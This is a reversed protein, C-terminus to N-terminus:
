KDYGRAFSDCIENSLGSLGPFLVSETVGASMLQRRIRDKSSAIVDIRLLADQMNRIADLAIRSLGHVTFRGRQASIRHSNMPPDIAIPREPLRKSHKSWLSSLYPRAARDSFIPVFTGTKALRSNVAHPDLVWVCGDARQSAPQVAFYLAVLASQTWDLLRTPVGYHQMLFYWDWDSAPLATVERLYPQARLVFEHRFRDERVSAYPQRFVGPVLSWSADGHGRFWIDALLDDGINASWDLWIRDILKM